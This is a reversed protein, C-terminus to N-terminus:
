QVTNHAHAFM